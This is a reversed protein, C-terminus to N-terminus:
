SQQLFIFPSNKCIHHIIFNGKHFSKIRRLQKFAIVTAAMILFKHYKGYFPLYKVIMTDVDCHYAHDNFM